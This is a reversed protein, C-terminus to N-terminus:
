IESVLLDLAAAPEIKGTKIDLDTQFIKQYINKLEPFTFKQSVFYSKKVVFPHLGSKRVIANYTNRKEMLEKVMLINRFQYNIMALLYPPTDGKELHSHMLDLAQKKNKQAIADITEFIDTEVRPRVMLSVDEQNVMAGAKFSALKRIENAMRWLDNGVYDVMKDIARIDAQVGYAGFEEKVWSKLKHGDLPDFNQCKANNKLFKFLSDRADIKGDEFVVVVDQSALFTKAEKLFGEKFASDSFPNVIIILKKEAFMSAQRFGIKLDAFLASSSQNKDEKAAQCNFYSLNLGSKHVKQYNEIIEDLKRRTRYSDEGYLFIIM